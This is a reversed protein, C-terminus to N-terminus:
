RIVTSTATYAVGTGHETNVWIRAIIFYGRDQETLVHSEGFGLAACGDPIGPPASRAVADCRYWYTTAKLPNRNWRGLTASLVSGVRASGVVLPSRRLETVRANRLSPIRNSTSSFAIRTGSSSRAIEARRLFMDSDLKSVVYSIQSAGAIARCSSPRASTAPGATRCRYWQFTVEPLPRGRWSASRLTAEKGIGLQGTIDLAFSSTGVQVPLAKRLTITADKETVTGLADVQRASFAYVGDALDCEATVIAATRESSQFLEADSGSCDPVLLAGAPSGKVDRSSFSTPSAAQELTLLAISGDGEAFVSTFGDESVNAAYVEPAGPEGIVFVSTAFRIEPQEWGDVLVTLVYPHESPIPADPNPEFGDVSFSCEGDSVIGSIPEARGDIELTCETPVAGYVTYTPTWLGPYTTTADEIQNPYVAAWGSGIAFVDDSANEVLLAGGSSSSGAIITASSAETSLELTFAASCQYAYCDEMFSPAPAPIRVELPACGNGERAFSLSYYPSFFMGTYGGRQELECDEATQPAIKWPVNYEFPAYDEMYDSPNPSELVLCEELGDDSCLTGEFPRPDGTANFQWTTAKASSANGLAYGSPPTVNVRLTGYRSLVSNGFSTEINDQYAVSPEPIVYRLECGDNPQTLTTQSAGIETDVYNGASWPEGTAFAGKFYTYGFSLAIRGCSTAGNPDDTYIRVVVEDGIRALDEIEDPSQERPVGDPDLVQMEVNMRPKVHITKELDPPASAEGVQASTARIECAGTALFELQKLEENVQCVTGDGAIIQVNGIADNSYPPPTLSQGTGNDYFIIGAIESLDASDGIAGVRFQSMWLQEIVGPESPPTWEPFRCEGSWYECGSWTVARAEEPEAASRYAFAAMTLAVIVVLRSGIRILGM